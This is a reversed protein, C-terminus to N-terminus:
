SPRVTSSPSPYAFDTSYPYYLGQHIPFLHIEALVALPDQQWCQLSSRLLPSQSPSPLHWLPFTMGEALPLSPQPVQSKQELQRLRSEHNDLCVATRVLGRRLRPDLDPIGVWVGKLDSRLREYPLVPSRPPSDVPPVTEVPAPAPHEGHYNQCLEDIAKAACHSRCSNCDLLHRALSQALQPLALSESLGGCPLSLWYSNSSSKKTLKM